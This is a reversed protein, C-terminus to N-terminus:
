LQDITSPDNGVTKEEEDGLTRSTYYKNFLLLAAGIAIYILGKLYFDLHSDFFRVTLMFSFFFLAYAVIGNIQMKIGKYLYWGCFALIYLNFWLKALTYQHRWATFFGDTHQARQSYALLLGSIVFFPLFVLFPNLKKEGAQDRIFFYVIFGAFLFLLIYSLTMVLQDNSRDFAGSYEAVYNNALLSYHLYYNNSLFLVLVSMAILAVTQFPRNWFFAGNPFLLKGSVYAAAIAFSYGVTHHLVFGLNAGWLVIVISFWGLIQTRLTPIGSRYFKIFHPVVALILLWYGMIEISHVRRHRSFWFGSIYPSQLMLWFTIGALYIIAVSSANALYLVPLALLMWVLLFQTFSGIHYIQTILAISSGIMLVLFTAASEMWVKSHHHHFFAKYFVALGAAIPVFSLVMRVGKPFDDWNHALLSVVGASICISALVACYILTAEVFSKRTKQM